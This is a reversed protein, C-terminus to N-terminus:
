LHALDFPKAITEDYGGDGDEGASPRTEGINASLIVIKAAAHGDTRLARALDWGNMGPMSIDLLFLDPRAEAALQRCQAADAAAIVTFGLPGLI